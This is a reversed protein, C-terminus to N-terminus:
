AKAWRNIASDWFAGEGIYGYQIELYKELHTPCPYMKGEFVIQDLPFIV